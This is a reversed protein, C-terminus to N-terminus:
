RLRGSKSLTGTRDVYKRTKHEQNIVVNERHSRSETYQRKNIPKSSKHHKIKSGRMTWTDIADVYEEVVNFGTYDVKQKARHPSLSSNIVGGNGDKKFSAPSVLM